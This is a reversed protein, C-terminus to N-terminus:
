AEKLHQGIYSMATMGGLSHGVLVVPSTPPVLARIVAHLDRGFDEITLDDLTKRNLGLASGGHGRQDWTIVRLGSPALRALVADWSRHTLGWDHALLVTPVYTPTDPRAHVHVALVVGDATTVTRQQKEM